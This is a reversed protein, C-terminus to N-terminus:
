NVQLPESTEDTPASVMSTDAPELTDSPSAALEQLYGIFGEISESASAPVPEAEPAPEPTTASAPSDSHDRGGGCASILLPAALAMSMAWVASKRRTKM